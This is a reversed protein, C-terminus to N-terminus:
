LENFLLFSTNPRNLLVQEGLLLERRREFLCQDIEFRRGIAGLRLHFVPALFALAQFVLEDAQALLTTVRSGAQLRDFLLALHTHAGFSRSRCEFLAHRLEVIVVFLLLLTSQVAELFLVKTMRQDHM